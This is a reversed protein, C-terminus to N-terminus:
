AAQLEEFDVFGDKNGDGYEMLEKMAQEVQFEFSSMKKLENLDVFGDGNRDLSKFDKLEDDSLQREEATQEGEVVEQAFEKISLKGDKDTDLSNFQDIADADAGGPQFFTPLEPATLFGDEDGM